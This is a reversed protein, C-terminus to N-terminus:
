RLHRTVLDHVRTDFIIENHGVGDFRHVEAGSLAGASEPPVCVQDAGAIVAVHRVDPRERHQRALRVLVPSKPKLATAPGTLLYRVSTTGEHPTAITLVRDVRAGGPREHMYARALIGGLSHGVLSLQADQRVHADVHAVFRDLVSDFGGLPGYTFDLTPLGLENEVFARMPDFVPGAALYGHLFVAVRGAESHPPKRRLGGVILRGQRALARLERRTRGNAVAPPIVRALTRV